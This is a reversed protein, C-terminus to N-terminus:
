LRRSFEDMWGLDAQFQLLAGIGVGDFNEALVQFIQQQGRGGPMEAHQGDIRADAGAALDRHDVLGALEQLMRDDIRM